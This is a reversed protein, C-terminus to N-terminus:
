LWVTSGNRRERKLSWWINAQMLWWAKERRRLSSSSGRRSSSHLARAGLRLCHSPSSHSQRPWAREGKKYRVKSRFIECKSRRAHLFALSSSSFNHTSAFSSNPKRLEVKSETYRMGVPPSRISPEFVTIPVVRSKKRRQGRRALLEELERMKARQSSGAREALAKVDMVSKKVDDEPM